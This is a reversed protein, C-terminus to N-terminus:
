ESFSAATHCNTEETALTSRGLMAGIAAVAAKIGSTIIQLLQRKGSVLLTVIALKCSFM